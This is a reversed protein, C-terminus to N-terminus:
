QSPDLLHLKEMTGPVSSNDLPIGSADKEELIVLIWTKLLV